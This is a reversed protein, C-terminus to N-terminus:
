LIKFSKIIKAFFLWHYLTINKIRFPEKKIRVNSDYWSYGSTLFLCISIDELLRVWDAVVSESHFSDSGMERERERQENWIKLFHAM